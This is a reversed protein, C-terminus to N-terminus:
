LALLGEINAAKEYVDLVEQASTMVQKGTLSIYKGNSSNKLQIQCEESFLQQVLALKENSAPIIFKFMYVTPWDMQELQTKLSQNPSM